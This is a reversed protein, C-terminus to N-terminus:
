YSGVVQNHRSPIWKMLGLISALTTVYFLVQIGSPRATYGVLIHLLQGFISHQSLISSTDWLGTGLAPLLGAQNLFAAAQAALGAALLLVLWATARFFYRLPIRLLGRYLLGGVAIGGGLGVAAGATMPLSTAGSAAVAWLFLVLESGERMVAAAVIAALALVPRDGQIVGNGIATVHAAMEKGHRQMWINHWALMAVALSLIIANFIAQGNGSLSQALEGAFAAVVGAGAVGILIGGAVWQGRKPIGRSAGLVIAVILSAELVERFVIVATGLM